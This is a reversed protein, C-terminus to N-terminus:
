GGVAGSGAHVAGPVTGTGTLRRAMFLATEGASSTGTYLTTDLGCFTFGSRLYSRVAPANVNTVELWATSLGRERGYTCARELLRSGIGRRRYAAAVRLDHIVLRRNWHVAEFVVGGCVSTGDLAVEVATGADDDADEAWEDDPYVKRLPADLRTEQLTFGAQGATVQYVTGTTFSNDVETLAARGAPGAARYHVSM